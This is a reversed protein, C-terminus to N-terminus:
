LCGASDIEARRGRVPLESPSVAQRFRGPFRGLGSRVVPAALGAAGYQRRRFLTHGDGSIRESVKAM